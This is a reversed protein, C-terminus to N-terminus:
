KGTALSPISLNFDFFLIQFYVVFIYIENSAKALFQATRDAGRITIPRNVFVM